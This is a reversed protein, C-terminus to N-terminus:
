IWKSLVGNFSILIDHRLMKDHRVPSSKWRWYSPTLRPPLKLEVLRIGEAMGVVGRDGGDEVEEEEEKEKVVTPM